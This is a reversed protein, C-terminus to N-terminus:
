SNPNDLPIEVTFRSGAGETSSVRLTGRHWEVITKCLALGLGTTPEGRLGPRRAPTFAEFLTPLAAAPIGVGEDEVEVRVGGAAATVRVEVRGGDPTFKVANSVLNLLVQTFKNVDLQAYVPEAPLAYDFRHGLLDQSRQLDDLAPRLVQAVDVRERRLDTNASALFEINIFSRIMDVSERSTTELVRLMDPVRSDPPPVVEHQLFDVIQQVMVFAASLDHSLIELTANKRANFNDANEQYRKLVSIDRLQGGLLVGGQPLRQYFPTLCFWQVPEGPSQLRIEIEDHMQGRVWLKWYHALYTQDDPYLRGLLAPLEADAQAPDGGLLRAYADNVFLLRGAAVDYAFHIHASAQAQDRFFAPLDALAPPTPLSSDTPRPSSQAAGRGSDSLQRM